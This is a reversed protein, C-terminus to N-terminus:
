RRTLLRAFSVYSRIIVSLLLPFLAACASRVREQALKTFVSDKEVIIVYRAESRFELVGDLMDGLDGPVVFVGGGAGGGACDKWVGERGGM